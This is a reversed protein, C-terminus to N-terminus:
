VNYFLIQHTGVFQCEEQYREQQQGDRQCGMGVRGQWVVGGVGVVGAGLNGIGVFPTEVLKISRKLGPLGFDDAQLFVYGFQGGVLALQGVGLCYCSTKIKIEVEVVSGTAQGLIGIQGQVAVQGIFGKLGPL